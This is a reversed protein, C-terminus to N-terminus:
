FRVKVSKIEYPKLQLKIKEGEATLPATQYRWATSPLTTLSRLKKIM